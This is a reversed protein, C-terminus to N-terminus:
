RREKAVERLEPITYGRNYAKRKQQKTMGQPSNIAKVWEGILCEDHWKTNWSTEGCILCTQQGKKRIKRNLESILKKNRIKQCEASCLMYGSKGIFEKGCIWCKIKEMKRVM